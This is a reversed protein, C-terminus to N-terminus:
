GKQIVSHGLAQSKVTKWGYVNLGRVASGFTSELQPLYQVDVIQSAFSVGAIHGFIVDYKGSSSNLQRSCYVSVRDIMGLYGSRLPSMGDGTLSADKLESTKILGCAWPPLVVYRYEEPLDNEDMVVNMAVLYDVINTKTLNKPTGSSGMDIDGSDQGASNGAMNSDADSYVTTLYDSDIQIKMRLSADEAWDDLMAIDSQYKDVDDVKFAFMKAKNIDLQVVDAQLDEYTIDQGKQYDSITTDPTQRINVKDGMGSIEDEWNSNTIEPIVTAAYFKVNLTPSWLEPIFTGSQQPYGNAAQVSM